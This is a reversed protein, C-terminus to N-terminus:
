FNYTIGVAVTIPDYDIGTIKKSGSEQKLEIDSVKTYRIETSFDWNQAIPYEIGAMLQSAFENEASYSNEVGSSTKLDMDIEEVWGLGLGLYPRLKTNMVPDFRYYGNLFIINSAFDGGSVSTGDSFKTKDNENTRYDWAIEAAWNDTIRYGFAGGAVWGSSYEGKGTAGATAVGSQKFDQDGLFSTGANLKAYWKKNEAHAGHSFIVLGLATVAALTKKMLFERKYPNFIRFLIILNELSLLMKKRLFIM